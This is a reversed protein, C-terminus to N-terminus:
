KSNAVLTKLDVSVTKWKGVDFDDVKTKSNSLSTPVNVLM